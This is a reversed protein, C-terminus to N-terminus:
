RATTPVNNTGVFPNEAFAAYIYVSSSTNWASNSTRIKIGNSVFDFGDFTAQAANSNAEYYDGMVNAPERTNDFILWQNTGSANKLLVYAPKFGTYIFPGNANGTGAWSGFQSFGKVDAFCYAIYTAGNLNTADDDQVSFVTSTPRTGNWSGNSTRVADTLNLRIDQSALLSAHYVAWNSTSSRKKTIIMKPTSGLGHGITAASGTGTYSVISFGSTTNASVTSTISGSTNTVAASDSARLSWSIYSRGSYNANGNTDASLSFSTSNFASVSGEPGGTWNVEADTSNSSLNKGTGRVSDFWYHATGGVNGKIWVLAPNFGTTISTSTGTGTYIVPNFYTNPKNITAFAM